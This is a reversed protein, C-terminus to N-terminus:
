TIMLVFCGFRLEDDNYLTRLYRVVSNHPTFNMRDRHKVPNESKDSEDTVRGSVKKKYNADFSCKKRKGKKYSKDEEGM